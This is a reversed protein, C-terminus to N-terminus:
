SPAPIGGAKNLEELLDKRDEEEPLAGKNGIIEIMATTFESPITVKESGETKPALGARYAVGLADFIRLELAGANEPMAKRALALVELNHRCREPTDDGWAPVFFAKGILEWTEENVGKALADRAAILNAPANAWEKKESMAGIAMLGVFLMVVLAAALAPGYWGWLEHLNVGMGILGFLWIPLFFLRGKLGILDTIISVVTIIGAALVNGWTTDMFEPFAWFLPGLFVAIILGVLIAFANFIIM